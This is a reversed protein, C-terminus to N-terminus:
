NLNRVIWANVNAWIMRAKFSDPIERPPDTQQASPILIEPSRQSKQGDPYIAEIAAAFNGGGEPFDSAEIYRTTGTASFSKEQTGPLSKIYIRYETDSERPCEWHCLIGTEYPLALFGVPPM